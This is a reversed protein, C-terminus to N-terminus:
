PLLNWGSLDSKPEVTLNGGGTIIQVPNSAAVLGDITESGNPTVTIPTASIDAGVTNGIDKIQIPFLGYPQRMWTVVSPLLIEFSTAARNILLRWDFPQISYSSGTTLYKDNFLPRRVWGLSPGADIRMWSWIQGGVSNEPPTIPM